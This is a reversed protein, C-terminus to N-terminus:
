DVFWAKGLLTAMAPYVERAKMFVPSNKLSENTSVNCYWSDTFEAAIFNQFSVSAPLSAQSAAFDQEYRSIVDIKGAAALDALVAEALSKRAERFKSVFTVLEAGKTGLNKQQDGGAQLKEVAPGFVRDVYWEAFAYYTTVILGKHIGQRDNGLIIRPLPAVNSSSDAPVLWCAKLSAIRNDKIVAQESASMSAQPMSAFGRACDAAPDDSLRYTVSLDPFQARLFPPLSASARVVADASSSDALTAPGCSQNSRLALDGTVVVDISKNSTREVGFFKCGALSTLAMLLTGINIVIQKNSM